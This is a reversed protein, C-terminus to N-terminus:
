FKISIGLREEAIYLQLDNRKHIVPILYGILGGAVAGVMVDSPFHKGAKYRCYGTASAIGLSFSWVAYRSLSDPFIDSYVKALFVASCFAQSTHGSYFSRLEDKSNVGSSYTYPRPRNTTDKVIGTLINNIERTHYYMMLITLASEIDTQIIVFLPSKVAIDLFVNSYIRATESDNYLASKDLNHVVGPNLNMSHPVTKNKEILKRSLNLDYICALISLDQM